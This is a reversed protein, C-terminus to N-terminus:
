PQGGWGLLRGLDRYAKDLNEIVAPDPMNFNISDTLYNFEKIAIRMARMCNILTAETATENTLLQNEDIDTEM